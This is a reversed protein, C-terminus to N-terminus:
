VQAAVSACWRELWHAVLLLAIPQGLFEPNGGLIARTYSGILVSVCHDWTPIGEHCDSALFGALLNVYAHQVRFMTPPLLM